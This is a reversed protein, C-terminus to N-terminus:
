WKLPAIDKLFPAKKDKDSLIPNEVGWDIGLEPDAWSIACDHEPSYYNDTKYIVEANETLTIFAHGFGHPVFLQKKNDASLELCIWQKYTSSDPRLDVAFDMIAGSVCRLLKAQVMPASQFHIGRLTGKQASMSHNDQVFECDIQPTKIKIYTEMFWGRSDGFVKPELILVGPLKTETVTM